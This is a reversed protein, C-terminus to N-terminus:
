VSPPVPYGREELDIRDEEFAKEVAQRVAFKSFPKFLKKLGRLPIELKLHVITADPGEVQFVHTVRSGANDGSVVESVLEGNPEWRLVSEDVQSLGLLRVETRVRCVGEAESLLTYKVRPHVRNRAHHGIDGFQQRVVEVPRKIKKSVEIILMDNDM